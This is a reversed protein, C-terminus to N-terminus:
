FLFTWVRVQIQVFISGCVPISGTRTNRGM